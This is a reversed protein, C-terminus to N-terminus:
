IGIQVGLTIVRLPPLTLSNKSEPDLGYYNTITFLNQGQAYLRCNSLKMSKQMKKPLQWSVSVNKLKIYSANSWGADSNKANDLPIYTNFGTTYQQMSAVDGPKQWRDVQWNPVNVTGNQFAGGYNTGFLYNQAIQKTFQFLFDIQIGKYEFTNQFGGYFKPDTSLIVNADEYVPATTPNGNRDQFQFIGTAPDVGLFHYVKQRNIPEGIAYGLKLPSNEFDEVSLLRNKPLTINLSSSWKFGSADLNITSLTLEWGTNQVTAPLNASIDSFGTIIPLVNQLLQNSSRNISYNANILIRDKLFGLDIGFQLKRTEEWQLYPNSLNNPRYGIVGQYPNSISLANYLSLFRYDSIQDSGTTGYSARLKGFSLAGICENVFEEQSFVWAVGSAWFNHFQNESGFRSSGDRRASLNLIYKDKFNYNVRGFLANYKYISNFSSGSILTTASKIDERVQDSNFGSGVILSAIKEEKQVTSGVLLELKGKAINTIYNIQPEISWSSVSSNAFNTQGNIAFQRYEPATSEITGYDISGLQLKTYGFNSKVEFGKAIQYSLSATGVLNDAKKKSIKFLYGIPNNFTSIGSSNPQWNLSTNANYLNPAVPALTMASGTLDVQPLRNNDTLYSGSVQIKFKKNTSTSNLNFRLSTKTDSFDGPFVNGEKHYGAGILFTTNTSGGSISTQLDTFQAKGGILEKQWDTNRTNDWIGNLDFDRVGLTSIGDNKLAERRMNLYQESNMLDLKRGVEGRGHQLNADVKIEGTRGGKTTILIAGNAARSGYISTADADKLITISEIDSPNIFNLPSGYSNNGSSGFIGNVDLGLSNTVPLLQSTFPIGDVVYLPDNGNKMSNTGQIRVKVGTGAFGTAQEIFLGPVRGQLALLPNNVPQKEIADANITTVNGTSLRQNTTGYAIVQVEDLKSTSLELVVDGLEKAANIEKPVYGIFSIVLVADENVGKLYFSGNAGTSVAKGGKGKVIVSAGPLGRGDADVVRGSVNIELFRSVINELFSPTEKTKITVIKGDIEYILNLGKLTNSLAEDLTANSVSVSVKQNQPITTQDYYFDYGTQKRIDKLVTFLSANAKSLTVRQGFTSASVQMLSAILIVTTLRM